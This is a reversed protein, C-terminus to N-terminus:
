QELIADLCFATLIIQNTTEIAIHKELGTGINEYVNKIGVWGNLGHHESRIPPIEQFLPKRM